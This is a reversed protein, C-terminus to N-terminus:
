EKLFALWQRCGPLVGLIGVVELLNAGVAAVRGLATDQSESALTEQAVSWDPDAILHHSNNIFLHGHM